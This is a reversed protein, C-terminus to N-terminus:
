TTPGIVICSFEILIIGNALKTRTCYLAIFIIRNPPNTRTCYLEIYIIRDALNTRTCYRQLLLYFLLCRWCQGAGFALIGKVTLVIEVGVNQDAPANRGPVPRWRLFALALAVTPTELWRHPHQFLWTLRPVACICTYENCVQSQNFTFNGWTRRETLQYITPQDVM